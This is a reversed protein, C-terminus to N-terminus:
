VPNPIVKIPATAIAGDTILANYNSDTVGADLDLKATLLRLSAVLNNIQNRLHYFESEGAPKGELGRPALDTPVAM